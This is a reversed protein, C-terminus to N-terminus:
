QHYCLDVIEALASVSFLHHVETQGAFLMLVMVALTFIAIAKKM